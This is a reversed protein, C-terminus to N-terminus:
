NKVAIEALISFRSTRAGCIPTQLNKIASPPSHRRIYSFYFHSLNTSIANQFESDILSLKSIELIDIPILSGIGLRQIETDSVPEM